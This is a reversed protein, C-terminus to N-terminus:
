LSSNEYSSERATKYVENTGILDMCFPSKCKKKLCTNCPKAKNIVRNLHNDEILGVGWFNTLCFLSVTKERSAIAIHMNGTDNTVLLDLRNALTRLERLSIKGSLYTVRYKIEDKVKNCLKRERKSDLILIFINKDLEILRQGPRIFRNEISNVAEKDLLLIM